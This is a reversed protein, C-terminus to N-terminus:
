LYTITNTMIFFSQKLTQWEYKINMNICTEREKETKRQSKQRETDRNKPKETERDRRREM